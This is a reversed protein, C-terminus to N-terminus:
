DFDYEETTTVVESSHLYGIRFDHECGDEGHARITGRQKFNILALKHSDKNTYEFTRSTWRSGDDWYSTDVFGVRIKYAISYRVEPRKKITM